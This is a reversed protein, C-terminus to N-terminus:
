DEIEDDEEEDLIRRRASEDIVDVREVFSATSTGKPDNPYIDLHLDGKGVQQGPIFVNVNIRSEYPFDPLNGAWSGNAAAVFGTVTQEKLLTGERGAQVASAFDPTLVGLTGDSTRDITVTSSKKPPDKYSIFVIKKPAALVASSLATGRIVFKLGTSAPGENVVQEAMKINKGVKTSCLGINSLNSFSMLETLVSQLGQLQAFPNGSNAEMKETVHKMHEQQTVLKPGTIAATKKSPPACSVLLPVVVFLTSLSKRYHLM